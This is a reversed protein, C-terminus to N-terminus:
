RIEFFEFLRDCLRDWDWYAEATKRNAAGVAELEAPHELVRLITEAFAKANPECVYKVDYQHMLTGAIGVDCTVIPRGAAVYDSMKHPYRARNLQRDDLPLLLIDCAGLLQPLEEFPRYGVHCIRHNIANHITPTVQEFGAGVALLWVDNRQACVKAFANLMLAEDPNFNAIYGLIFAGQPIGSLVDRLQARAGSKEMPTIGVLDSGSYFVISKDRLNKPSGPHEYYAQSILTVYNAFRLCRPECYSDIAFVIRRLFRVIRPLSKFAFSPIVYSQFLGEHGGWWDSWDIALKAGFLKALLGPLVCCPKHSFAYVFDPRHKLILGLRTFIDFLGWGEQKDNFFAFNGCEVITVNDPTTRTRPRYYKEASTGVMTVEHGRQAMRRAIELARFWSGHNPMNHVLVFIKM